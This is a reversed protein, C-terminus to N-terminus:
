IRSTRSFIFDTTNDMNIVPVVWWGSDVVLWLWEVEILAKKSWGAREHEDIRVIRVISGTGIFM